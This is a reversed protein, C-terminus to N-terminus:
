EVLKNNSLYHRQEDIYFIVASLLLDTNEQSFPFRLSILFNLYEFYGSIYELNTLVIDSSELIGEWSFRMYLKEVATVHQVFAM